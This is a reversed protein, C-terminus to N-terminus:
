MYIPSVTVLQPKVIPAFLLVRRTDNSASSFSFIVTTFPMRSESFTMLRMLSGETEGLCWCAGEGGGGMAGVSVGGGGRRRGTGGRKSGIVEM